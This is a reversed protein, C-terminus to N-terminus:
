ETEKVLHIFVDQITEKHYEQKLEQPAGIAIIGGQYMISLRNCYEAEDMFHTTVFVTTGQSSLDYITQWFERRSIPDVGSTPEDLFLIQPEHLISCTLALRQKWGLPLDHTMRNMFPALGYQDAAREFAQKQSASQLGYVGTFFELNERVLLDNYLSFKQSMYGINRKIEMTQSYVDYGEVFAEGSTPLLLGCLMRITTTKGAGNAGLFGFIEGDYVDFSVRDVATFDGFKRTLDVVHVSVDSM